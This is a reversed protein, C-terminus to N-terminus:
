FGFGKMIKGLESAINSRDAILKENIDASMQKMTIGKVPEKELVLKYRNELQTRNYKRNARKRALEDLRKGDLYEEHHKIKEDIRESDTMLGTVESESPTKAETIDDTSVAYGNEDAFAETGYPSGDYADSLWIVPFWDDDIKVLIENGSTEADKLFESLESM